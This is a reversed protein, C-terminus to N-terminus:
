GCKQRLQSSPIALDMISPVPQKDERRGLPPQVEATSGADLKHLAM